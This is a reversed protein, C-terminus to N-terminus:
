GSAACRPSLWVRCVGPEALRPLACTLPSCAGMSPSLLPTLPWSRSGAVHCLALRCTPRYGRPTVWRPSRWHRAARGLPRRARCRRPRRSRVRSRVCGACSSRRPRRACRTSQRARAALSTSRISRPVRRRRNACLSRRDSTALPRATRLHCEIAISAAM